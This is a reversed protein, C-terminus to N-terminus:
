RNQRWEVIQEIVKEVAELPQDAGAEFRYSVTPSDPSTYSCIFVFQGSRDGPELRFSRIDFENLREVAAAWTLPETGSARSKLERSESSRKRNEESSIRPQPRIQADDTFGSQTVIQDPDDVSAQRIEDNTKEVASLRRQHRPLAKQQPIDAADADNFSRDRVVLEDSSKFAPQRPSNPWISGRERDSTLSHVSDSEVRRLSKERQAPKSVGRNRLSTTSGPKIDPESNIGEIEDFLDDQSRRSFNGNRSERDSNRSDDIPSAVVPAFQPIGFIALAPVTLVPIMLLITAVGNSKM